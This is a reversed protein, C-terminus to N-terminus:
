LTITRPFITFIQKGSVTLNVVDHTAIVTGPFEVSIEFKYSGEDELRVNDIELSAFNTGTARDIVIRPASPEFYTAAQNLIKSRVAFQNYTSSSLNFKSWKILLFTNSKTLEDATLSYRWTLSM